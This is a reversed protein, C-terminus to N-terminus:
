RASASNLAALRARLAAPDHTLDDRWLRIAGDGGATVVGDGGPLFLLRTVEDRHGQLTRSEGTEVDWIRVAGDGGGTAITKGDPSFSLSRVRKSHGVLARSEGTAVSWLRLVGADSATALLDGRPSLRAAYLGGDIGAFVRAEGTLVDWIRATRDLSASVLKKGDNSFAVGLIQSDHGGLELSAGTAPDWLRLVRDLGSTAIRGGAGGCLVRVIPGAHGTLVRPPASEPARLDWLRLTRDASGSALRSGDASFCVDRVVDTHGALTRALRPPDASVDWLRVASEKGASALLKGDPSFSLRNTTGHNRDIIESRGGALHTLRLAGDMGTSAVRQGDPSLAIDHVPGQHGALVGGSAGLSWVRLTSDLAASVLKTGDASFSLSVVPGAHARLVQAEGTGLDWLYVAREPGASALRKGDPSFALVSAAAAHGRLVRERAGPEVGLVHIARDETAAAIWRRDPSFAITSVPATFAGVRQEQGSGAPVVRLSGQADGVAVLESDGSIQHCAAQALPRTISRSGGTRLDWARVEADDSGSLLTTGDRSFALRIIRERHEGLVRSSPPDIDLRFLRVTNDAGGTALLRGDPSFAAIALWDTHGELAASRGTSLDWVRATKDYSVTALKKGDASFVACVVEATHGELVRSEGTSLDWVRATKDYSASAVHTGDPSIAAAFVGGTHGRLTRPLTRSLADAAIVRVAGMRSFSPSLEALFRLAEAPDHDLSLRAQDFTVEDARTRERAEAEAALARAHEAKRRETEALQRGREAVEGKDVIERVVVGAALALVALLTAVLRNKRLWRLVLEKASYDYAGVIQGTQFKKLDGVLERASPYRREPLAAMAKDVIAELDKPVGRVRDALRPPPSSALLKTLVAHIPAGEYPSVGALLHYLIAGLAYVDAREDVRAGRAQEPPMYAPTGVISGDLTLEPHGASSDPGPPDDSAAGEGASVSLDKAVGWDIVVTEGFSGVLVNQPKLDRHIIGRSHAYAIAEAVDIVHPLLSLRDSLTAKQAIVAELSRGSVLKMSYYLKGSRWRGADHLPIISPHQLRATIQVERLFRAETDARDELIEKLAISRRLRRDTASLIRGLGGRAVEGEVVYRDDGDHALELAGISAPPAAPADLTLAEPAHARGPPPAPAPGALQTDALARDAPDLGARRTTSSM